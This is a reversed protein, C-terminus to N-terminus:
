LKSQQMNNSNNELPSHMIPADATSLESLAKNISDMEEKPMQASEPSISNNTKPLDQSVNVDSFGNAGVVEPAKPNNNQPPINPSVQQPPTSVNGSIADTALGMIGPYTTLISEMTKKVILGSLEVFQNILQQLIAQADGDISTVEGQDTVVVGQVNKVKALTIDPGLVIMQKKILETFIKKYDSNSQPQM